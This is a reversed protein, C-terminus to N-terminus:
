EVLIVLKNNESTLEHDKGYDSLPQVTFSIQKWGNPPNELHFEHKGVKELIVTSDGESESNLAAQIKPTGPIIIGENETSTYNMLGDDFKLILRQTDEPIYIDISNNVNIEDDNTNTLGVQYPGFGSKMSEKSKLNIRPLNLLIRKPKNIVSRAIDARLAFPVTILRERPSLTEGNVTLELWAQGGLSLAGKIGESYHDYSVSIRQGAEPAEEDNIYIASIKGTNNNAQGIFKTSDSSGNEKTWSYGAGNIRVGGLIPKNKVTYSFIQNQGDGYGIDEISTSVSKGNEGFNFSYNSDNIAIQGLAEEYIQKGGTRSDFIRLSFSASGTISRGDPRRDKYILKGQYNILSTSEAVAAAFLGLTLLGTILNKM